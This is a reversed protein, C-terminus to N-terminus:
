RVVCGKTDRWQLYLLGAHYHTYAGAVVLIHFLQHSHGAIDFRGPKWREPVRMAYVLAGMGYFLGMAVEYLTTYLAEPEDWFLILKHMVPAVGSVGMGFFLAARVNRYEPNQFVPILSVFITAIGVVTIFILYVNRLLPNCMFSYYVPPYFSAAILAAIGTYDVRLMIYAVRESHCTFLHCISSALLCFMAGGLFIFFPWRTIPRWLFPVLMNAMDDKVSVLMCQNTRNASLLAEPLCNSLLEPIHIHLSDPFVNSIMEPVHLQPLSASISALLEKPIKQLDSINPLHPVHVVAPLKMTTYITLWLFIIFGILHTWINLTENHITFISWLIHKIPWDARYHALIYENDRLYEPLAHFEVLRYKQKVKRWLERPSRPSGCVEEEVPPSKALNKPLHLPEKEMTANNSDESM